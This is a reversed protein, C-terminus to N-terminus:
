RVDGVHGHANVLGPVITRGKLEIREAGNPIPTRAAPGVATVRGDQMIVVADEVAPRGTGDFVRAGVLAVAHSPAAPPSTPEAGGASTGAALRAAAAIWFLHLSPRM